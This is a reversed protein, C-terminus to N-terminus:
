ECVGRLQSLGISERNIKFVASSLAKTFMDAHQFDTSVPVVVIEGRAVAERTYHYSVNIHKTRQNTAPTQVLLMAGHNDINMESPECVAAAIGLDRLVGRLWVAEKAGHCAAVYEAECTSTTVYGQLKSGWVVAAGNLEFVFGTTSKATKIDGAFDSDTYGVLTIADSGYAM